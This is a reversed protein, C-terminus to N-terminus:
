NLIYYKMMDNTHQLINFDSVKKEFKEECRKKSNPILLIVCILIILIYFLM